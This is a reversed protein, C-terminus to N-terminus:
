LYDKIRNGSMAAMEKTLKRHEALERDLRQWERDLMDTAQKINRKATAAAERDHVADCMYSILAVGTLLNTVVLASILLTM